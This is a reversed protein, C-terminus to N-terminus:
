FRVKQAVLQGEKNYYPAVQVTKGNFEGVFYGFKRCTEETLGRKTLARYEGFPVLSRDPVTKRAVQRGGYGEEGVRFNRGCSFCRGWGRDNISFADSSGCDPSPCPLHTRVWESM